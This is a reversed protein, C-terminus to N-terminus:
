EIKSVLIFLLNRARAGQVMFGLGQVRFGLGWGRSGSSQAWFGLHVRFSGQATYCSNSSPPPASVQIWFGAERVRFGSDKVMFWLGYVGVGFGM